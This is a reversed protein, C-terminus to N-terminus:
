GGVHGKLAIAYAKAKQFNIYRGIEKGTADFVIAVPIGIINLLDTAQEDRVTKEVPAAFAVIM